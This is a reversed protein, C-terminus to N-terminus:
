NKVFGKLMICIAKIEPTGTLSGNIIVQQFISSPIKEYIINSYLMLERGRMVVKKNESINYNRDANMIFISELGKLFGLSSYEKEEKELYFSILSFMWLLPIVEDNLGKRSYNSTLVKIRKEVELSLLDSDEEKLKNTIFYFINNMLNLNFSYPSNILEDFLINLYKFEIPAELQFLEQFNDVVPNGIMRKKNDVDEKLELIYRDLSEKSDLLKEKIIFLSERFTQTLVNRYYPWGVENIANLITKFTLGENRCFRIISVVFCAINGKQEIATLEENTYLDFLIISEIYESINNPITETDFFIKEIEKPDNKSIKITKNESFIKIHSSLFHDPRFDNPIYGLKSLFSVAIDDSCEYNLLINEIEKKDLTGFEDAILYFYPYLSKFKHDDKVAPYTLLDKAAIGAESTISPTKKRLTILWKYFLEIKYNDPFKDDYILKKIFDLWLDKSDIITNKYLKLLSAKGFKNEFIKNAADFGELFEKKDFLEKKYKDFNYLNREWSECIYVYAKGLEYYSLKEFHYDILIGAARSAKDFENGDLINILEPYFENQKGLRKIDHQPKFPDGLDFFYAEGTLGEILENLNDESLFVNQYYLIFLAYYRSLAPLDPLISKLYNLVDDSYNLKLCFRFWEDRDFIRSSASFIINELEKKANEPFCALLISNANFRLRFDLHQTAEKLFDLYQPKSNVLEKYSNRIEPYRSLIPYEPLKNVVYLFEQKHIEDVNKLVKNFYYIYTEQIEDKSNKRKPIYTLLFKLSILPNNLLLDDLIKKRDNHKIDYFQTKSLLPRTILYFDRENFKSYLLIAAFESVDNDILVCYRLYTILDNEPLKLILEDYLKYKGNSINKIIKHVITKNIEDFNDCTNLWFSLTEDKNEDQNSIVIELADLVLNKNGQKSELLLLEKCKSNYLRHHLLQALMICRTKLDFKEPAILVFLPIFYSCSQSRAGLHYDVINILKSKKTENLSFKDIFFYSGLIAKIQSEESSHIPHIPNLYEEFYWNFGSDGALHITEAIAYPSYTDPEGFFSGKSWTKIPRFELKSIESIFLKALESNKSESVIIAAIPINDEYVLLKKLIKFISKNLEIAYGKLRNVAIAFSLSRWNHDSIDIFFSKDKINEALKLSYAIELLPQSIFSFSNGNLQLFLNKYFLITEPIIKNKNEVNELSDIIIQSLQVDKIQKTQSLFIKEAIIAIINERQIATPFENFFNFYNTKLDIEDWELRKLLVKYMLTGLTEDEVRETLFDRLLCVVLPTKALLSLENRSKLFDLRKIADNTVHEEPINAAIAENKLIELVENETLEITTLCNWDNFNIISQLEIPRGTAIITIESYDKNLKELHRLVYRAEHNNLEDLGDLVITVPRNNIIFEFNFFAVQVLINSNIFQNICEFLSIFDSTVKGKISNVPILLCLNDENNKDIVYQAIISSKGSGIEGFLFIPKVDNIFSDIDGVIVNKILNDPRTEELHSTQIKIESNHKKVNRYLFKPLDKKNNVSFYKEKLFSSTFDKINQVFIKYDFDVYKYMSKNIPQNAIQHFILELSEDTLYRNATDGEDQKDELRQRLMAQIFAEKSDININKITAYKRILILVENELDDNAPMEFNWVVQSFFSKWEDNSFEELILYKNNKGKYQKEYEKLIAKKCIEVLTNELDWEKNVLLELIPKEPLKINLDKVKETSYEKSISNTSYFSFIVNPSKNVTDKLWYDLFYVLTNLIQHSFFSFNKSEYNKNEEIFKRNDSYIFVDGDSEIAVHFQTKPNAIITDFALKIARLKQLKIGKHKDSADRKIDM